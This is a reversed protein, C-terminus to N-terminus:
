KKSITETVKGCTLMKNGYYPNKIAKNNSLWSKKAMPCYQVFTDETNGFVKVLALVNNSLGELNERQKSADQSESIYKANSSMKENLPKFVMKQEATMKTQDIAALKTLFGTAETSAKKGDTAVLADKVSYYATILGNIQSMISTDVKSNQAFTNSTFIVMLLVITKVLNM